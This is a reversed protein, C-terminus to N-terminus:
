RGYKRRRTKLREANVKTFRMRCVHKPTNVRGCTKCQSFVKRKIRRKVRKLFSAKRRKTM